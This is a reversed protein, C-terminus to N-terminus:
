KNEEKELKEKRKKKNKKKQKICGGARPVPLIGWLFKFIAFNLPSGRSLNYFNLSWFYVLNRTTISASLSVRVGVQVGRGGRRQINKIYM